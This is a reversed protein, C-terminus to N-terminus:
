VGLLPSCAPSSPSMATLWFYCALSSFGVRAFWSELWRRSACFVFSSIAAYWIAYLLLWSALWWCVMGVGCWPHLGFILPSLRVWVTPIWLWISIPWGFWVQLLVLISCSASYIFLLLSGWGFVGWVIGRLLCLSGKCCVVLMWCGLILCSGSSPLFVVSCCWSSRLPDLALLCGGDFWFALALHYCSCGRSPWPWTWCGVLWEFFVVLLVCSLCSLLPLALLGLPLLSCCSAM